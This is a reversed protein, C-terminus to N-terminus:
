TLIIYLLSSLSTLYSHVSRALGGSKNRDEIEEEKLDPYELYNEKVLIYLQKANLPFSPLDNELPKILFGGMDAFFAHKITWNKYGAEHFNQETLKL